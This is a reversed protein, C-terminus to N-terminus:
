HRAVIQPAEIAAQSSQIHALLADRLDDCVQHAIADSTLVQAEVLLAAIAELLGDITAGLALHPQLSGYAPQEMAALAQIVTLFVRRQTEASMTEPDVIKDM